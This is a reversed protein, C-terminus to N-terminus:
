THPLPHGDGQGPIRADDRSGRHGLLHATKKPGIPDEEQGDHAKDEHELEPASASTIRCAQGDRGLVLWGLAERRGLDAREDVVSRVHPVDGGGHDVQGDAAVDLDLLVLPGTEHGHELASGVREPKELLEILPRLQLRVLAREHAAQEVPSVELGDVEVVQLVVEVLVQVLDLVPEVRPEQSEAEVVVTGVVHRSCVHAAADGEYDEEHHRQPEKPSARERGRSALRTAAMKLATGTM